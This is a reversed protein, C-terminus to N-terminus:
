VGISLSLSIASHDTLGLERPEHIYECSLIKSAYRKSVFCHDYRYGNNTRGVWSYTHSSPHIKRFADIFGKKILEDYFEYEWSFFTSYHPYHDPELINFDGIIVDSQVMRTSSVFQDIFNKKRIVKPESRDRSPVYIGTLVLDSNNLSLTATIERSYYISQNEFLSSKKDVPIKSIIMTGLDGTASHPFIVQSETNAKQFFSLTMGSFYDALYNCGISNKTETLVFIDETRHNFWEVQKLARELSPNGINLSLISINTNM